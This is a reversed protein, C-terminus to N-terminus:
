KDTKLQETSKIKHCATHMLSAVNIQLLMIVVSVVVDLHLNNQTVSSFALTAINFIM